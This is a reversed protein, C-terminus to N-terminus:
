DQPYLILRDHVLILLDDKGDGTVDGIRVAKPQGAERDPGEDYGRRQVSRPEEFVKFRTAPVLAGDADFALVQVHNRGQDCVAVDPLRDGNLDGVAMPGYKADKLDPEFSAVQRLVDSRGALPVLVLKRTGCLLIGLKVDGGFNGTLIKRATLTGVEVERQTAYTGDGKRTLIGLRGRAADYALIAPSQEGPLVCAAATSLSSQEGAAPYQDVVEWGKGAQFVVSRAFNKKVLLAAM